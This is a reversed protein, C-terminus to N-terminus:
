NIVFVIPISFPMKVAKGFQMAPKFKPLERMVRETEIRLVHHPAKISVISVYGYIDVEFKVLIIQEGSLGINNALNIDFNDLIIKNVKENTCKKLAKNSKFSECGPYIAVNEVIGEPIKTSKLNSANDLNTSGYYYKIKETKKGNSDYRIWTNHM